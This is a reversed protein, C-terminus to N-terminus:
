VHQLTVPELGFLYYNRAKPLISYAYIIDPGSFPYLVDETSNNIDILTSDRWSELNQLKRRRFKSFTTEITKEYQIFESSKSIDNFRSSSDVPLGAIFLSIDNCATTSKLSDSSLVTLFVVKPLIINLSM